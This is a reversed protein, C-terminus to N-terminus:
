HPGIDDASRRVFVAAIADEYVIRFRDDRALLTTLPRHVDAIVLRSAALEPDHSWDGTGDWIAAAHNIRDDGYINSRGDMSVPLRPLRWILYGGWNFHNYLPGPYQRQEVFAVAEAPYTAALQAELTAESIGLRIWILASAAAAAVLVGAVFRPRLPFLRERASAPSPMAVISAAAFVVLWADRASRYGLVIAVAFLLLQLTSVGPRRGIAFAAGLTLALTVWHAPSRFTMAQLEIIYQFAGTSRALDIVTGYLRYGFPTVLTALVCGALLFWRAPVHLPRGEPRGERWRTVLPEVAYLGVLMLGYVFQVHVNAWVVFLPLLWILRQRRGTREAGDILNWAILFCLITVLWSRPTLVPAMAITAAGLLLLARVAGAGARALLLHLTMLIAVTFIATYILVGALGFTRTLVVLLLDFLWSYAIWPRTAGFQSFPDTVPVMRHSLIWEGTRLHWGLDPDTVGSPLLALWIALAYVFAFLLVRRLDSGAPGAPAGVTTNLAAPRL